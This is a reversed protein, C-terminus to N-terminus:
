LSKSEWALRVGIDERQNHMDEIMGARPSTKFSGGATYRQEQRDDPGTDCWERVNGWLHHWQTTGISWGEQQNVQWLGQKGRSQHGLLNIGANGGVPLRGAAANWEEHTPLRAGRWRAYVRAAPWSVYVIPYTSSQQKQRLRHKPFAALFEGVTVAYRALMVTRSSQTQIRPIPAGDPLDPKSPLHALLVKQLAETAPTDSVELLWDLLGLQEPDQRKLHVLSSLLSIWRSESLLTRLSHLRQHQTHANGALFCRTLQEWLSEPHGELVDHPLESLAELWRQPHPALTHLETMPDAAYAVSLLAVEQHFPSDERGKPHGLQGWQRALIIQPIFLTSFGYWEPRHQTLLGTAALHQLVEACHRLAIGKITAQQGVQQVSFREDPHAANMEAMLQLLQLLTDHDLSVMSMVDAVSREIWEDVVRHFRPFLGDPLRQKILKLLLPYGSLYRTQENTAAWAQIAGINDCGLQSLYACQADTNLPQLRWCRATPHEDVLKQCLQPPGAAIVQAHPHTHLIGALTQAHTPAVQAFVLADLTPASSASLHSKLQGYIDPSSLGVVCKGQTQLATILQQLCTRKGLGLGGELLHLGPGQNLLEQLVISSTKHKCQLILDRSIFLPTPAPFASETLALLTSQLTSGTAPEVHQAHEYKDDAGPIYGKQLQRLSQAESYDPDALLNEIIGMLRGTESKVAQEVIWRLQQAVSHGEISNSDGGVDTWLSQASSHSKVFNGLVKVVHRFLTGDARLRAELDQFHRPSPTGSHM